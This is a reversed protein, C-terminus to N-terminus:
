AGISPPRVRAHALANAAPELCDELRQTHTHDDVTEAYRMSVQDQHWLVSRIVYCGIPESRNPISSNDKTFAANRRGRTRKQILM